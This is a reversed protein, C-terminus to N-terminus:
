PIQVNMFTAILSMLEMHLIFLVSDFDHICTEIRYVIKLRMSFKVDLLDLIEKDVKGFEDVDQREKITDFGIAPDDFWNKIQFVLFDM